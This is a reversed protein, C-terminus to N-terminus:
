RTEFAIARRWAVSLAVNSAWCCSPTSVHHHMCSLANSLGFIISYACDLETVYPHRGGIGIHFKMIWYWSNHGPCSYTRVQGARTRFGVILSLIPFLDKRGGPNRHLPSRESIRKKGTIDSLCLFSKRRKESTCATDQGQFNFIPAFQLCFMLFGVPTASSRFPSYVELQLLFVSESCRFAIESSNM